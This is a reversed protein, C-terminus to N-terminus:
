AGLVVGIATACIVALWGVPNDNAIGVSLVALLGTACGLAGCAVALGYRVSPKNPDDIRLRTTLERPVYDIRRVQPM